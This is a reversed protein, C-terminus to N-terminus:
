RGHNQQPVRRLTDDIRENIILRYEHLGKAANGRRRREVTHGGFKEKRFDRLRASIGAQSHGVGLVKEIESLTRWVGDKMCHFVRKNQGTLRILDHNRNYTGGDFDKVPPDGRECAPCEQHIADSYPHGKDCEKMRRDGM